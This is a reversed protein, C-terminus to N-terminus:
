KGGGGGRSLRRTEQHCVIQTDPKNHDFYKETFLIVLILIIATMYWFHECYDQDLLTKTESDDYEVNAPNKRLDVQMM